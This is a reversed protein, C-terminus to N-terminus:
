LRVDQLRIIALIYIKLAEMFDAEGAAEDV